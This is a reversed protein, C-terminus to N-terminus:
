QDTYKVGPIATMKWASPIFVLGDVHTRIGGGIPMGIVERSESSIVPFLTSRSFDVVEANGVINSIGALDDTPFSFDLSSVSSVGNNYASNGRLGSETPNLRAICGAIAFLSCLLILGLFKM